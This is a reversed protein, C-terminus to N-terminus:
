IDNPFKLVIEDLADYKGSEKLETLIKNVLEKRDMTAKIEGAKDGTTKVM